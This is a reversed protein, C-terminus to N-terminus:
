PEFPPWTETVLLMLAYSRVTYALLFVMANQLGRPQRGTIVIVLWSVFGILAIAYSMVGAIIAPILAYFVRLLVKLRSYGALPPPVLLRAPYAPDPAGGFPPFRDVTLYVYCNYRAYFRLFGAMFEYLAPPWQGTFLLAFWAIIVVVLAALAYFLLVIYHPIALLFRFFTTLRSRRDIYDVELTVPYSM